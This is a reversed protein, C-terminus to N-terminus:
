ECDDDAVGGDIWRTVSAKLLDRIHALKSHWDPSGPASTQIGAYNFTNVLIYSIAGDKITLQEEMEIVNIYTLCTYTITGDGDLRRTHGNIYHFYDADAHSGEEVGIEVGDLMVQHTDTEAFLRDLLTIIEAELEGPSESPTPCSQLLMSDAEDKTLSVTRGDSHVLAINGDSAFSLISM